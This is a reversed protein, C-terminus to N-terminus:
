AGNWWGVPWLPGWPAAPTGFGRVAIFDPTIDQETFGENGDSERAQQVAQVAAQVALGAMNKDGSLPICIFQALRGVLATVFQSSYLTPNIVRRTYIVIAQSGNTLIVNQEISAVVDTAVQFPIPEGLPYPAAGLNTSFIPIGPPAWNNWGQPIVYRVQECDSPYAYEYVWPPAPWDPIWVSSTVASTNEPTGPLAKLLALTATKRAFNWHAESLADNRCQDYYLSITRAEVSQETFSAISSRAGIAALAMNAIQIDSTAM